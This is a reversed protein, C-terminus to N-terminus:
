DVTLTLKLDHQLTSTTSTVKASVDLTYTGAPTGPSSVVQAGGGCASWLMVMLLGAGLLYAARRRKAGALAGLSALALFAYLWFIGRLGPSHPPTVKGYPPALSAATTTVQVTVPASATGNLTVSGPTVTCTSLSPAGSCALNVTQNFGGQPALTLSYTATQGATVTQSTTSSTIQFDMGTGSLQVTQPSNNAKDTLTLAGSRSGAATPTFTVNITCSAGAAVSGGCDNTEAFDGSTTIALPTLAGGGENTLTLTQPASTTSVTQGAFSLSATSLSVLPALGTGSLPVTQPSSAGNDTLTLAGTRNGGATPTFTVSITCGGGVAVSGACNNTQAFDGSNAGTISISAISLSQSGTNQLTVPQASSTTGVQQGPFTLTTPSLNVTSGLGSGSLTVTQPSNPANDTLTLAGTRNGPATPTFVVSITCAAGAAVSSGCNNTQAFDGSTTITLPTLAGGGENTLTLTQPASSTSVPQGSFSLSDASLSVVPALGTGSLSVTQPSGTAYDTLTLTGTRLGGTTPRFSVNFTCSANPAVSPLCNNTQTWDASISLSTISLALTGTNTVTVPQSASTTGVLQGNFSLSAPVVNPASVIGSGTLQVTQPSGSGNDTVTVAGTLNGTATPTFTVVIACNTTPALTGGGYPCSSGTTVLAFDGGVTISTLDLVADGTDTLTVSQQPSTTNALVGGFSLSTTSLGAAAPAPSLKAVFGTFHCHTPDVVCISMSQDSQITAQFPNATPFNWSTTEGAVYANGAADAAIGYGQDIGSGGLYTSYLLASGAPNLKTVFADYLGGGYDPQIPNATPFDTSATEGTVYTNGAGDVAVGLGEDPGSGGLYTSYVLASGTPNLKAVFATPNGASAAENTAQLPNVTPFDTSSTEGTIYANGSNDAAIGLGEDLSSGGLYTSYVFASGAPNLKAVFATPNGATAANNTGQLPDATPFNTSETYGVIYANGATDVAIGSGEDVSSGGLYTSYLLASGAANLKAVFADTDGGYSAQVPGATPFDSSTTNGTVYADGAGDAAIGSGADSGSGGLYTSYFLASGSPNLKAVFATNNPAAKNTAQLPNLTPFDTSATMGTVYANGAADAAIALGEDAGSGGLFTSYVLENGLPILKTVFADMSSSGFNPQLANATPFDPSQAWGTVYANGETDAAIANVGDAVIGGLYTSYSLAPDIVLPKTHDYPGLAFHLRNHADLAFRGERFQRDVIRSQRNDTKSNRTEDGAGSEQSRVESEQGQYVLPKHLRVDGGETSIVLDGDGVMRLPAHGHAGVDLTIAGPDAGPAVVFDYELQGGQNGYYVLDVGPYVDRYKVKAYTPVNTRWKKPDNGIFYNVKGPLEDEGAVAANPNAGVLRLRVVENEIKSKPNQILYNTRPGQDTTRRLGNQIKSKPNQIPRNTRPGPDTTRQLLASARKPLLPHPLPLRNPLSFTAPDRIESKQSRVGSKQLELVAEDGTLFLAYGRGRSLFKVRPDTQGGNVEFGLPLKGYGAALRPQMQGALATIARNAQINKPAQLGGHLVLLAAALFSVSVCGRYIVTRKAATERLAALVSSM